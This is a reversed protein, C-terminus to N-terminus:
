HKNSGKKIFGDETLKVFSVEISSELEKILDYHIAVALAARMVDQIEKALAKKDAPGYKENKIGTGEVHNVAKALEGSEECLRTIIQFPENGDPFKKNLGNIISTLKQFSDM